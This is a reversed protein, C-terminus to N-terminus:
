KENGEENVPVERGGECEEMPLLWKGVLVSGKRDRGKSVM